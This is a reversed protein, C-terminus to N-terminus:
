DSAADGVVVAAADVVSGGIRKELCSALNNVVVVLHHLRQYHDPVVVTKEEPRWAAADALGTMKMAVAAATQASDLEFGEGDVFSLIAVGVDFELAPM